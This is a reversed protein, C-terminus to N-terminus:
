KENIEGSKKMEHRTLLFNYFLEENYLILYLCVKPSKPLIPLIDLENQLDSMYDKLIGFVYKSKELVSKYVNKSIVYKISISIISELM